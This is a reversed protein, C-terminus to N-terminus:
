MNEYVWHLMRKYVRLRNEAQMTLLSRKGTLTSPEIPLADVPNTGLMIRLQPAAFSLLSSTIQWKQLTGFDLQRRSGVFVYDADRIAEVPNDSFVATAKAEQVEAQLAPIDAGIAPPIAISLSYSFFRAAEVLSHLVGTAGGLWCLKVSRLENRSLRMMCIIDAIAHAPHADPSGCNIIPFTVEKEPVWGNVPMGYVFMGDMYYSVAGLLEVPFEEIASQWNEEPAVYVLHGSMQRVAATTCLRESMDMKAFMQIVTRDTMFDDIANAEPIGRAQQLRLWATDKGLAKLTTIHRVM